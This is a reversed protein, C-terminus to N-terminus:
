LDKKIKELQGIVEDIKTAVNVAVIEDTDKIGIIYDVSVDFILSLKILVSINPESVGSEYRLLTRKSIDLKDALEEQTMDNDERLDRIRKNWKM